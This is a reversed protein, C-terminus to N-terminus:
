SFLEARQAERAALLAALRGAEDERAFKYVGVYPVLAAYFFAHTCGVVWTGVSGLYHPVLLLSALFTAAWLVFAAIPHRACLGIVGTGALYRAFRVPFGLGEFVRLGEEASAYIAARENEIAQEVDALRQKSSM